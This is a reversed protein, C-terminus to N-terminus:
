QLRFRVRDRVIAGDQQIVGTVPNAKGDFTFSFEIQGKPFLHGEKHYLFGRTQDENWVVNCMKRWRSPGRQSAKIRIREWQIPEPSEFLLLSKDTKKVPIRFVEFNQPLPRDEMGLVAFAKNAMADLEEFTHKNQLTREVFATELTGMIRFKNLAGVTGGFRNEQTIVARNSTTLPRVDAEKRISIPPLQIAPIVGDSYASLIHEEFTAYRSTTFQFTHLMQEGLETETFMEATYLANPRFQKNTSFNLYPAPTEPQDGRECEGAETNLLWALLGYPLLPLFGDMLVGESDDVLKGNRDRFRMHIGNAYMDRVYSENFQVGVDYGYYHNRAGDVPLTREIYTSLLNIAKEKHSLETQNEDDGIVEPVSPIGPGDDTRFYVYDIAHEEAANEDVDVSTEICLRYYTSPELNLKGNVNQETENANRSNRRAAQDVVSKQTMYKIESLILGEGSIRISDIQEVGHIYIDSHRRVLEGVKSGQYYAMGEALKVQGSLSIIINYVPEPFHLSFNSTNLEQGSVWPSPRKPFQDAVFHLGAYHFDYDYVVGNDVGRWNVIFWHQATRPNCAPHRDNHDERRYQDDIDGVHQRWLQIQPENPEVNDQINIINKASITFEDSEGTNIGTKVTNWRGDKYAQLEIKEDHINYVFKRGGVEDHLLKLIPLRVGRSERGKLNHVPRAFTLVPRSDVPIIPFESWEPPTEGALVMPWTTGNGKHHIFSCEKLLPWVPKTKGPQVWEFEVKLSLDPLPWFLKIGIEAVGYIRYPEPVKGGLLMYMFLELGIGFVKLALEAHMELSGELQLPKWFIAADFSIKAVLAFSVPGYTERIDLGVSAGTKLSKSDIMFYASAKFLSLIEARIRKSEPEDRGIYIYWNESSNFDFFAELGAGVTIVDELSYRVDINLMFTGARGDLVALLYFAGEEDKNDSRQKLLNAKGELIIVPGPILVVLMVSMNITFGDDFMTGITVGAGFGYNDYIPMWKRISTINREPPALYWEYWNQEETKTPGAHIAALGKVGYLSTGTAGLPLGAPLEAGLVIFFTTFENGDADKLKGIMLEAEIQLRVAMLNLKINGKFLDGTLGTQPDPTDFKKYSVSGEFSLTNPIEFEVAVGTLSVELARDGDPKPKQLWSFKLGEVSAKLDMGEVLSLEGSLGIWQRQEDPDEGETGFGFQSIGIKFANFDLTFASPLNVWGGDFEFNGESDVSLKEIDFTPWDMDGILVKMKGGGSILFIDDKSEFSLYEATIKLLNPLEIEFLNNNGEGEENTQTTDAMLKIAFDGQADINIGIGIWKDFYPIFLAGEIASNKFSNQKLELQVKKLKLQFDFLHLSIAEEWDIGIVGSFGGNGIASRELFLEPTNDEDFIFGEPLKLSARGIYVGTFDEGFGAEVLEPTSQTRNFFFRVNEASIVLGTDGIQSPPLNVRDFGTIQFDLKDNLSFGGTIGIQTFGEPSVGDVPAPRLFSRPFRLAIEIQDITLEFADEGLFFDIHFSTRGSGSASGFVIALGNIGPVEIKLEESIILVLEFGIGTEVSFIHFNSFFVRSIIDGIDSTENDMLEGPINEAPLLERIPVLFQDLEM